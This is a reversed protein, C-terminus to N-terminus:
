TEETANLAATRRELEEEFRDLRADWIRRYQALWADLQEFPERRLSYIRRQGDTRSQVVGAERLIRLHRSVGSQAIPLQAVLAGVPQENARLLDVIQRRRPDALAEM